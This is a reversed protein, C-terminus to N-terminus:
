ASGNLIAQLSEVTIDPQVVTLRGIKHLKEYRSDQESVVYLWKVKRLHMFDHRANSKPLSRIGHFNNIYGGEIKGVLLYGSASSPCMVWDGDKMKYAFNWVMNAKTKFVRELEDKKLYVIRFKEVFDPYNDKYLKMDGIAPWGIAIYGESGPEPPFPGNKSNFTELQDGGDGVFVGWVKVEGDSM